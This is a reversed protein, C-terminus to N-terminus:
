AHDDDFFTTTSMLSDGEFVTTEFDMEFQFKSVRSSNSGMVENPDLGDFFFLSSSWWCFSSFFRCFRVVVWCFSDDDAVFFADKVDDYRRTTWSSPTATGPPSQWTTPYDFTKTKTLLSLGIPRGFLFLCFNPFFVRFGMHINLTKFLTNLHHHHLPGKSKILLSFSLFPGKVVENYLLLLLYATHHLYVHICM